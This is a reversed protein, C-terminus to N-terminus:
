AAQSGSRRRRRSAAVAAGVLLLAWGFNANSTSQGATSCACGGGLLKQADKRPRPSGGAEGGSSSGAEAESSAGAEEGSSSGAEGGAGTSEITKCLAHETDCVEGAACDADVLCGSM